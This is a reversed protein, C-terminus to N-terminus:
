TSELSLARCCYHYIRRETKIASNKFLKPDIFAVEDADAGTSFRLNDPKIGFILRLQWFNHPKIYGPEDVALISYTFDGELNVEEKMERAIATKIDEGHDMGGGPLDWWNRDREKVVLVKNEENQLLCKISVRFLYDTPRSTGPHDIAGHVSSPNM